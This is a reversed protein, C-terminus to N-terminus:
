SVDPEGCRIEGRSVVDDLHVLEEFTARVRKIAFGFHRGFLDLLLHERGDPEGVSVVDALDVIREVADRLGQAM